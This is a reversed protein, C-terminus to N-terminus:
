TAASGLCLGQGVCFADMARQIGLSLLFSLCGGLAREKLSGSTPHALPLTIPTVPPRPCEVSYSSGRSWVYKECHQCLLSVSLKTDRATEIRTSMWSPVSPNITVAEKRLRNKDPLHFMGTSIFYSKNRSRVKSRRVVM